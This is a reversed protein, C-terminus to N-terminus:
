RLPTVTKEIGHNILEVAKPIRLNTATITEQASTCDHQEWQEFATGLGKVAVRLLHIGSQAEAAALTLRRVKAPHDRWSAALLARLDGLDARSQVLAGDIARSAPLDGREILETLATWSAQPDVGGQESELGEECTTNSSGLDTILEAPAEEIGFQLDGNLRIVARLIPTPLPGKAAASPACLLAGLALVGFTAVAVAWGQKFPRVVTSRPAQSPMLAVICCVTLGAM